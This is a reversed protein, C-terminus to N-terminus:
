GILQMWLGFCCWGKCGFGFGGDVGANIGLVSEVVADFGLV